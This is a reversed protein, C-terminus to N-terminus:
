DNHNVAMEEYHRLEKIFADLLFDKQDSECTFHVIISKYEKGDKRLSGVVELTGESGSMDEVFPLLSESIFVRVDDWTQSNAFGVKKSDTRDLILNMAEMSGFGKSEIGVFTKIRNDNM